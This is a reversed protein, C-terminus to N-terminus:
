LARLLKMFRSIKRRCGVDRTSINQELCIGSFFTLVLDALALADSDSREARINKALIHRFLERNREIKQQAEYPLTALEHLSHVAFCGRNGDIPVECTELFKRINEFGLPAKTLVEKAGRRYFYYNLTHLFLDLKDEFISFLTSRDLGMSEELDNLSTGAYGHRWFAALAKQLLIEQEVTPKPKM